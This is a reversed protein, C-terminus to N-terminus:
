AAQAPRSSLTTEQQPRLTNIQYVQSISGHGREQWACHTAIACSSILARFTHPTHCHSVPCLAQQGHTPVQTQIGSKTTCPSTVGARHPIQILGCCFCRQPKGSLELDLLFIKNKFSYPLSHYLWSVWCLERACYLNTCTVYMHMYETCLLLM